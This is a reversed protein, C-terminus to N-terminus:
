RGPPDLRRRLEQKRELLRRLEGGAGAGAAAAQSEIQKQVDALEQESRRRRLVALCSEAEEWTPPASTEFAIEFLLRRDREDLSQALTAADPREGSASAEVLVTLIREVEVGRHLEEARIEGALQSRFEDAEILMQVLRREAPKGTRGVLEPRAKVESRRENAAKRMSERLVPEEIRMQQAIRTAWESRLIRDPVRQVYPMLFNVARLKGEATTLDMKQARSILYDVYPPAENLL